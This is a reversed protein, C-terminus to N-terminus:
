GRRIVTTKGSIPDIGIIMEGRQLIHEPTYPEALSEFAQRRGTETCLVHTVEMEDPKGWRRRASAVANKETDFVDGGVMWYETGVVPTKIKPM